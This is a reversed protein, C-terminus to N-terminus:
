HTRAGAPRSWGEDPDSLGPEDGGLRERRTAAKATASEARTLHLFTGLSVMLVSAGCIIAVPYYLNGALELQSYKIVMILSELVLAISVVGFFRTTTRRVNSFVNEEEMHHAPYERSIGLGLEFTALAVVAKSITALLTTVLDGSEMLGKAFHYGMLGILVLSVGFFFTAFICAMIFKM